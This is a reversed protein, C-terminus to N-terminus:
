APAEAKEAKPDHYRYLKDMREDMGDQVFRARPVGASVFYEVQPLVYRERHVPRRPVFDEAERVKRRAAEAAEIYFLPNGDVRCHAYRAVQRVAAAAGAVKRWRGVRAFDPLNDGGFTLALLWRLFAVQKSYDLAEAYSECLQWFESLSDVARASRRLLDNIKIGLSDEYLSAIKAHSLLAIKAHSAGAKRTKPDPGIEIEFDLNLAYCKARRRSERREIVVGALEDIAALVTNNSGIGTAEQIEDVTMAFADRQWGVTQRVFLMLVKFANPTLRPMILDILANDVVTFYGQRAFPRIRTGTKSM